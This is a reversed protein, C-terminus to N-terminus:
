INNEARNLRSQVDKGVKMEREGERKRETEQRTGLTKSLEHIFTADEKGEM